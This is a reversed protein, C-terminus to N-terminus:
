TNASVALSELEQWRGYCAELEVKVTEMREMAATIKDSGQRYFEADGM